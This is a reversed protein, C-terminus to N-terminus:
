RVTRLWQLLPTRVAGLSRYALVGDSMSAVADHLAMAQASSTIAEDLPRVDVAITFVAQAAGPVPVFTQRESRWWAGAPLTDAIDAPWRVPDVHRPHAHLRPHGTVNWVFREWRENGTM